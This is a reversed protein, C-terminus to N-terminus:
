PMRPTLGWQLEDVDLVRNFPLPDIKRAGICYRELGAAKASEYLWKSYGEVAEEVTDDGRLKYGLKAEGETFTEKSFRADVFKKEEDTLRDYYDHM